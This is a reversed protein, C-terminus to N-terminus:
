LPFVGLPLPHEKMARVPAPHRRDARKRRRRGDRSSRRVYQLQTMENLFCQVYPLCLVDLPEQRAAYDSEADLRHHYICALSCTASFELTFQGQTMEHPRFFMKGLEYRQGGTKYAVGVNTVLQVTDFLISMSQSGHIWKLFPTALSSCRVMSSLKANCCVIPFDTANPDIIAVAEDDHVGLDRWLCEDTTALPQTLSSSDSPERAEESNCPTSQIESIVDMAGVWGHPGNVQSSLMPAGSSGERGKWVTPDTCETMGLLYLWSGNYDQICSCYVDFAVRNADVDLMDIHLRNSPVFNREDETCTESATTQEKIFRAFRDCQDHPLLMEFSQAQVVSYRSRMLMSALKPCPKVFNLNSDLHVTCDCMGSLLRQVLASSRDARMAEVLAKAQSFVINQFSMTLIVILMLLVVQARIYPQERWIGAWFSTVNGYEDLGTRASDHYLHQASHAGIDFIAVVAQLGFTLRWNGFVVGQLVRLAGILPAHYDYWDPNLVCYVWASIASLGVNVFDLSGPPLDQGFWVLPLLLIVIFLAALSEPSRFIDMLPPIQTQIYSETQKRDWFSSAPVHAEDVSFCQVFGPFNSVCALAMVMSLSIALKQSHRSHYWHAYWRVDKDIQTHHRTVLMRFALRLKRSLRKLSNWIWPFLSNQSTRWINWIKKALMAAHVLLVLSCIVVYARAIRVENAFGGFLVVM